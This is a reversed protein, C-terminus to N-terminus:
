HPLSPQAKRILLVAGAKLNGKLLFAGRNCEIMAPDTGKYTWSAKRISCDGALHAGDLLMESGSAPVKSARAQVEAWEERKFAVLSGLFSADSKLNDREMKIREVDSNLQEVKSKQSNVYTSGSAAVLAAVATIVTAVEGGTFRAKQPPAQQPAPLQRLHSLQGELDRNKAELTGVAKRSRVRGLVIGLIFASVGVVASVLSILDM